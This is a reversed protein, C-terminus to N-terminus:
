TEIARATRRDVDNLRRGRGRELPAGSIKGGGPMRRARTADLDLRRRVAHQRPRRFAIVPGPARSGIRQRGGDRGIWRRDDHRRGIAVAAASMVMMMVLAHGPFTPVPKGPSALVYVP